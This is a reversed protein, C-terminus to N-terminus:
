DWKVLFLLFTIFLLGNSILVPTQKKWNIGDFSLHFRVMLWLIYWVWAILVGFVIHGVSTTSLGWALELVILGVAGTWIKIDRNFKLNYMAWWWASVATTILAGFLILWIKPILRYEFIIIANIGVWIGLIGLFSLMLLIRREPKAVFSLSNKQSPILVFSLASGAILIAAAIIKAGTWESFLLLFMVGTNFLVLALFHDCRSIDSPYFTLYVLGAWWLARAVFWAFVIWWNFLLHFACFVFFLGALLDLFAALYPHFSIKSFFKAM